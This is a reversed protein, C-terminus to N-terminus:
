TPEPAGFGLGMSERGVLGGFVCGGAAPAKRVILGGSVAGGYDFLANSRIRSAGQSRM